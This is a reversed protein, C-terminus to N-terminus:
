NDSLALPILEHFKAIFAAALPDTVTWGNRTSIGMLKTGLSVQLDTRLRVIYHLVATASRADTVAAMAVNAAIMQFGTQDSVMAGEPNRLIMDATPVHDRQAMWQCLINASAAGINAALMREMLPPVTGTFAPTAMYADLHAAARVLSRPTCYATDETPVSDAFFNQDAYAVACEVVIPNINHAIAWKKWGSISFEVNFALVTNILHSLVRASGAKDKARNGNLVVIWGRPFKFGGISHEEPDTLDRMVKQEAAGAAAIEEILIIGHTKGANYQRMVDLWLPPPTFEFAHGGTNPAFKKLCNLYEGELKHPLAAGSLEASDRRAPKEEAFGIDDVNVGLFAAYSIPLSVRAWMSKGTGPAGLLLIPQWLDAHFNTEAIFDLEALSIAQHTLMTNEKTLSQFTFPLGKTMGGM